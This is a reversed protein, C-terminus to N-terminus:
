SLESNLAALVASGPCLDAEVLRNLPMEVTNLSAHLDDSDPDIYLLGTM